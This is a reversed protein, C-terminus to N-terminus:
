SWGHQATTKSVRSLKGSTPNLLKYHTKRDPDSVRLLLKDSSLWGYWTINLDQEIPIRQRLAFPPEQQCQAPLALHVLILIAGLRWIILRPAHLVVRVWNGVHSRIM